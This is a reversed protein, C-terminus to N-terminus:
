SVFVMTNLMLGRRAILGTNETDHQRPPPPKVGGELEAGPGRLSVRYAAM